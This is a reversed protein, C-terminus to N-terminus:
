LGLEEKLENYAELKTAHEDQWSYWAHCQNRYKEKLVVLSVPWSSTNFIAVEALDEGRVEMTKTHKQRYPGECFQLTFTVWSREGIGDHNYNAEIGIVTNYELDRVLQSPEQPATRM